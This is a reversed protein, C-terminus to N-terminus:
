GELLEPNDFVNGVVEADVMDIWYGLDKRFDYKENWDVYFGVHDASTSDFCNQYKGFRVPAYAKGFINKIIDNEFVKKGNKDKLGTYQCITDPKVEQLTLENPLGWDTMKEVAIYHHIPVPNREYDEKCCYTTEACECHGGEVWMGNNIKKAKFLIERNM